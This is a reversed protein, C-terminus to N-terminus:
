NADSNSDRKSKWVQDEGSKNQESSLAGRQLAKIRGQRLTQTGKPDPINMEKRM